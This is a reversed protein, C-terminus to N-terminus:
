RFADADFTFSSDRGASVLIYESILRQARRLWDIDATLYDFSVDGQLSHGMLLRIAIESAGASTALTRFSHRFVHPHTRAAEGKQAIYAAPPPLPSFDIKDVHRWGEGVAADRTPRRPGRLSPFVFPNDGAVDNEVTRAMLLSYILDSTPLLLAKSGKTRVVLTKEVPDIDSWMMGLLAGERLGLFLLIFAAKRAMRNDLSEIAGWLPKVERTVFGANRPVIENMDWIAPAAPVRLPMVRHARNWIARLVRMQTNAEGPTEEAVENFHKVLERPDGSFDALPRDAFKRLAVEVIRRYEAQTSLALPKRKKGTRAAKYLHYAARLTVPKAAEEEEHTRTSPKVRPDNGARLQAKLATAADRARVLSLGSGDAKWKGLVFQASKFSGDAQRTKGSYIFSIDGSRGRRLRMGSVSRRGADALEYYPWGDPPMPLRLLLAETIASSVESPAIRNAQFHRALEARKGESERPKALGKRAPIEVNEVYHVSAGL